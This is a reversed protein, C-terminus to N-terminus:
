ILNHEKFSFHEKGAIIIHDLLSIELAQLANKVSITTKHDDDSPALSGGPHNHAIIVGAAKHYIARELIKRPYVASKNVTGKEIREIGLLRNASNLFLAIFEEDSSGKLLTKLYDYAAQPSSVLDKNSLDKKSYLVALDKLFNLLVAANESIGEAALRDFSQDLINDLTKFKAFLMKAAPKTDKRPIAFFLALELIEHDLLSTIGNSIYREKLRKRHGLYHKAAHTKM